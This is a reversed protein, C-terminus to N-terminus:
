LDHLGKGRSLAQVLFPSTEKLEEFERPTYVLIDMAVKPVIATYVDALRDLFRKETPMVVVLDVDGYSDKEDEAMSGVLIVRQAGMDKLVRVARILEEKLLRRRRALYEEDFIL